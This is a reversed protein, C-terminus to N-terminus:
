RRTKSPKIPVSVVPRSGQSSLASAAKSHKPRAYQDLYSPVSRFNECDMPTCDDHWPCSPKALSPFRENSRASLM